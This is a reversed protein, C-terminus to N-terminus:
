SLQDRPRPKSMLLAPIIVPSNYPRFSIVCTFHMYDSLATVTVSCHLLPFRHSPLQPPLPLVAEAGEARRGWAASAALM